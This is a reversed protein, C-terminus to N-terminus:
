SKGEKEAAALAALAEDRQRRVEDEGVAKAAIDFYIRCLKECAARTRSLDALRDAMVVRIIEEMESNLLSMGHEQSMHDFLRDYHGEQPGLLRFIKDAVARAEKDDEETPAHSLSQKPLINIQAGTDPLHVTWGSAFPEIATRPTTSQTTM